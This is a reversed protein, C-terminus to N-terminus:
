RTIDPDFFLVEFKIEGDSCHDNETYGNSNNDLDYFSEESFSNGFMM